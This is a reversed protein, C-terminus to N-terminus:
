QGTWWSGMMAALVASIHAEQETEQTHIIGSNVRLRHLKTPDGSFGPLNVYRQNAVPVVGDGPYKSPANRGLMFREAESSLQDCIGDGFVSYEDFVPIDIKLIGLDLGGYVIQGYQIATPLRTIGPNLTDIAPSDDALDRITPRRVDLPTPNDISILGVRCSRKGRLFDVVKWDDQCCTGRPHAELYKYIRGLQTGRHPAGTTLLGVVSAKLSGAKQQLFARAALGGRSHAVLVTEANGYRNLIGRVALRVERRLGTFSSFDGSSTSTAKIGELGVRGSSSDFSGFRIRYCLVGQPNPTSNNTLVGNAIIACSNKFRLAVFDNWTAPSSNMGHLLLLVKAPDQATAAQTGIIFVLALLGVVRVSLSTNKAQLTNM